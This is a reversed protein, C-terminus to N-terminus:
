RRMRDIEFFATRVAFVCLACLDEQFFVQHQEKRGKRRQPSDIQQLFLIIDSIVGRSITWSSSLCMMPCADAFRATAMASRLRQRRM